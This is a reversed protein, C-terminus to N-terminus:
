TPGVTAPQATASPATPPKPPQVETVSARVPEPAAPRMAPTTAQSVTSTAPATAKSPKAADHHAAAASSSAASVQAVAPKAAETVRTAVHPPNVAPLEGQAEAVATTLWMATCAIPVGVLGMPWPVRVGPVSPPQLSHALRDSARCAAKM